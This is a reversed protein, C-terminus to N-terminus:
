AKLLWDTWTRRRSTNTEWRGWASRLSIMPSSSCSTPGARDRSALVDKSAMTTVAALLVSISLLNRWFHMTLRRTKAGVARRNGRGREPRSGRLMDLVRYVGLNDFWCTDEDTVQGRVSLLVVLRGVGEPVTVVGFAQQWEGEGTEFPFTQDLQEQTWRNEATQWRIVLTAQTNGQSRCSVEIAYREGPQVELGQLFCGWQVKAARGSGDGVEADWAFQGQPLRRM